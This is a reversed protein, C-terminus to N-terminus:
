QKSSQYTFEGTMIAEIWSLGFVVEIVKHSLSRIFEAKAENTSLKLQDFAKLLEECLAEKKEEPDQINEIINIMELKILMVPLVKHLAQHIKDIIVDDTTGPIIMKLVEFDVDSSPSDIFKKVINVAAIVVPLEEKVKEDLTKFLNKVYTLFKGFITKISM